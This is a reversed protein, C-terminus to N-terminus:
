VIIRTPEVPLFMYLLVFLNEHKFWVIKHKLIHATEQRTSPFFHTILKFLLVKRGVSLQIAHLIQKVFPFGTTVFFLLFLEFLPCLFSAKFSDGM